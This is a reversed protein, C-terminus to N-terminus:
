LFPISEKIKRSFALIDDVKDKFTKELLAIAETSISINFLANDASMGNLLGHKKLEFCTFETDEYSWENMFENHITEIDGFLVAKSKKIGNERRTVYEKYLISILYKADNTIFKLDDM